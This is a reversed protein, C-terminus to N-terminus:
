RGVAAAEKAAEYESEAEHESETHEHSTTGMQLFVLTLLSFVLAQVFAVFLELPIFVVDTIGPLLWAFVALVAGGAFINGFLRFAFSLLRSVETVLEIIGVFFEIGGQVGHEKIARFQFYKSLHPGAGLYMFGFVQTVVVSVLAMSFTLNLDSTPPRFFPVIKNSLDGFLFPGSPVALHAAQVATINIRGITDIGPLVDFLNAFLIFFFFTAVLPFFQRGKKEGVVSQVLRLISEIGWEVFNQMGSPILDRRRTGFYAVIVLLVITIWTCLLTNTVPLGFLTFIVDPQIQIPQLQWINM